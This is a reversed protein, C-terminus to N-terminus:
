KYNTENKLWKYYLQGGMLFRSFTLNLAAGIIGFFYILPLATIFGLISSYITSRMVLKDQRRVIFFNLGFIDYLVFGIIGVTLIILVELAKEYTINLYWFILSHASIFLIVLVSTTLLMLNMYSKFANKKRNLFPFFTKSLISLLTKSLNIITLIANYIGVINAAAFFGLIFTSTNNYLTPLFQNVFIPFNATITKKIIRHPLWIFKLKYKTVLMFQGVVGAGIFGASQLLPYIWFDEEAKIFVFVCLTFFVKIGLNLYTIYRMKEIGQFFWGPFLTHGVLMLMSLGYILGYEYFPPYLFVILSILFISLLLFIAKVTIVKSYIINLKKQSNKFVAVDRVATIQFSFDTLATFYAILSSAFVIIGYKEFGIVRLIYPLTILPLLMGILQLASLSVFNELLTKGDKSKLKKIIYKLKRKMNLCCKERFLQEM